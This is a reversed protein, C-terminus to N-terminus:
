KAMFNSQGFNTWIKHQCIPLSQTKFDLNLLINETIHQLGPNNIFQDMRYKITPAQQITSHLMEVSNNLMQFFGHMEVYIHKSCFRM